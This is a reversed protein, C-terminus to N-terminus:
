VKEELIVGEVQHVKKKEEDSYKRSRKAPGMMVRDIAEDLNGEKLFSLNM